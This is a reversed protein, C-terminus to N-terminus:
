INKNQMISIENKLLKEYQKNFNNYREESIPLTIGNILTVKTRSKSKIFYYNVLYSQHIRMFPITGESLKKEVESLKGNFVEIEETHIHINIKRGCSEFFLISRCSIKYEEKRYQFVFYILKNCIKHYAQWFIKSFTDEDIPKKIFAFINLQLMKILCRNCESICIVLTEENINRIKEAIFIGEPDSMQVDLYILDYKGGSEIEKEMTKKCYFVDIEVSINVITCYNHIYNEIQNIILNEDECIAIKIM